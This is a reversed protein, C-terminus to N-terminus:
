FHEYMDNLGGRSHFYQLMNDKTIEIYVCVGCTFTSLCDLGQKNRLSRLTILDNKERICVEAIVHLLISTLRRRRFGITWYRPSINDLTRHFVLVPNVM